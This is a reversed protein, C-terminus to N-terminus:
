QPRPQQAVIKAWEAPTPMIDDAVRLRIKWGGGQRVLEDRYVGALSPMPQGGPGRMVFLYRSTATARDGNLDVRPNTIIHYNARNPTGAPGLARDLMQRIAARGKNSGAGNRWEGDPAFLDAYAAYDRRDLFDAYDVLIREIALRDEVQRLRSASAGGRPQAPAAASALAVVAAITLRIM